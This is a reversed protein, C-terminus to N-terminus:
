REDDRRLIKREKVPLLEFFSNTSLGSEVNLTEFTMCDIGCRIWGISVDLVKPRDELGEIRLLLHEKQAKNPTSRTKGVLSVKIGGELDM